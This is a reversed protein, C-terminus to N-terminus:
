DPPHISRDSSSTKSYLNSLFAVQACRELTEMRYFAEELNAGITLAGHRRLIFVDSTKLLEGLEKPVEKTEPPTYDLYAISGLVIDTEPLVTIAEKVGLVSFTTAYVPHAHLCASIDPRSNYIFLHLRVDSSPPLEGTIKRGNLDVEVLHEASLEGKCVSTPSILVNGSELRCSLNGEKGRLYGAKYLRDAIDLFRKIERNGKPSM